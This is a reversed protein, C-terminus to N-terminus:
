EINESGKDNKTSLTWFLPYTIEKLNGPLIRRLIRDLKCQVADYGSKIKSMRLKELMKVLRDKFFILYHTDSAHYDGFAFWSPHEQGFIFGKFHYRWYKANDTFVKLVGYNKLIRKQEKLANFPNVCHELVSRSTVYDFCENRFPLRYLDCTVDVSKARRTDVGIGRVKPSPKRKIDGCGVDISLEREM